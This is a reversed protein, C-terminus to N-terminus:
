VCAVTARMYSESLAVRANRRKKMTDIGKERNAGFPYFIAICYTGLKFTLIFAPLFMSTKTETM